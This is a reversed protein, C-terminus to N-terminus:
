EYLDPEYLDALRGWRPEDESVGGCDIRDLLEAVWPPCANEIWGGFARIKCAADMVSRVEESDMDRLLVKFDDIAESGLMVETEEPWFGALEEVTVGEFGRYPTGEDPSLLAELVPRIFNVVPFASWEELLVYLAEAWPKLVQPLGPSFM